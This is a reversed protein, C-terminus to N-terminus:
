SGHLLAKKEEFFEQIRDFDRITNLSFVEKEPYWLRATQALKTGPGFAIVVDADQINEMVKEWHIPNELRTLVVDRISQKDSPMPQGTVTSLCPLQVEHFDVKALYMDLMKKVPAVLPSHLGVAPDLSKVRAKRVEQTIATRLLEIDGALGTVVHEDNGLYSAVQTTEFERCLNELIASPVKKVELAGLDKEQRLSEYFETYKRIIYLGDPFTLGGAAFLAAYIGADYGAVMTPTIGHEALLASLACSLLFIAPYSMPMQAIESDSAAFCLKVFNIGLCHSAEEFFEQLVRHEDYLDKGMGVFQGGYGPFLFVVNM